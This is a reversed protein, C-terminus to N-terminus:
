AAGGAALGLRGRDYRGKQVKACWERHEIYWRVTAELGEDFNHRPTWGLERRTKAPDIAYRRDHGPRDQVFEKLDAYRKVGAARLAPNGAAPAVKELIACLRDVIELNTRENSAGVNYKEGPKGNELAALVAECHDEVYLWDRVNGGDGYIPLRKGELANLTMLPILKEPFQFPGYNNSCNTIMTPLGYTHFYARALHDAAAKSASYPSNPAYPTDERFLGTKGLSGYVEDTSVHIFRFRRKDDDGMQAFRARAEELLTFTGIVNTNVFDAPGDISRDVHTEAAFNVVAFPRARDFATRMAAADAIDAHIFQFRADSEVEALNLLSGAYTLKDIVAVGYTTKKLLLRVFNCGIFGAGGTVVVTDSM